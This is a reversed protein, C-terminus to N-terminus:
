GFRHPRYPQPDLGTAKGAIINALLRASPPGGTMGFHGHGVALFLGPYSRAEGLFPLSDPTSPRFGMWFSQGEVNVGPFMTRVSAVLAKARREDPPAELGAIEVTGAVRLGHEMPTVGFSRSKNSITTTLSLGSTPLMVHYGRETELPVRIGLPELLRVARAGAAVVIRSTRHFGVNTMVDYGARGDCPIIKMVSEPLLVGGAELFLAQLTQILRQPNVTYGNGPILVGRKVATSLGPFMQRLDDPGLTQSPIGQRERLRHELAAGETEKDAEWVHVQGAPRILDAYHTPGLLEKWCAFADRHLARMADSIALVRPLRGAAVWKLLWPLAKPFYSPRVALPGLPDLLWGPVKPLMGPLAIPVSTDASIMGANGFSAGGPPPLPDFLIVRQGSRLLYLATSLGVVGAGIVAVSTTEPSM